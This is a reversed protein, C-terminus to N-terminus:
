LSIDVPVCGIGILGSLVGSANNTNTCCVPSASCSNGGLGIGTIPSCNVGIPVDVGGAVIGLLGLLLSTVPDSSSQVSDCCQVPGTDCGTQRAALP